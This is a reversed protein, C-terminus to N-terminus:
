SKVMSNEIQYHNFLKNSYFSIGFVFYFILPFHSNEMSADFFSTLAIPLLLSLIDLFKTNVLSYKILRYFIYLILFLHILWGLLYILLIIIFMKMPEMM